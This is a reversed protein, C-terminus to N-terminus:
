RVLYLFLVFKSNGNHSLLLSGSKYGHLHPNSGRGRETPCPDPMATLQPMAQLHPKSGTNSHSYHLRAAAGRIPGRAQSSGCAVCTVRFLLFFFLYIFCGGGLDQPITYDLIRRNLFFYLLISFWSNRSTGKHYPPKLVWLQQLQPLDGGHRPSMGHGSFKWM